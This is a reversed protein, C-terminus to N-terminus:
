NNVDLVLLNGVPDYNNKKLGVPTAPAIHVEIEAQGAQGVHENGLKDFAKLGFKFTGCIEILAEMEIVSTGHYWPFYCWPMHYWGQCDRSQGHYWPFKYWPMNYWGHYGGDDKFLEFKSDDLPTDWDITGSGDDGHLQCYDGIRYQGGPVAFRITVLAAM